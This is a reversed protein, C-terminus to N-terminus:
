QRHPLEEGAYYAMARKRGNTRVQRDAILRQTPLQRSEWDGVADIADTM